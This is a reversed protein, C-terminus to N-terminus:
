KRLFPRRFYKALEVALPANESRDTLGGGVLILAPGSGQRDYAIPTGDKSTVHSKTQGQHTGM